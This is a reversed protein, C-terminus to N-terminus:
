LAGLYRAAVWGTIGSDFSVKKWVLGARTTQGTVTGQSGLPVRTILKGNPDRRVNLSYVATAVRGGGGIVSVNVDDSAAAGREDTATLRFTYQGSVLGRAVSAPTNANEILVSRPGAIQAWQYQAITGDQDTGKGSLSVAVTPTTTVVVTKDSGADAVPPVNNMYPYVYPIYNTYNTYSPQTYSQGSDVPAATETFFSPSGTLTVAQAAAVSQGTVSSDWERRLGSFGFPFSYSASASESKDVTTKAWLVYTYKGDTGRFAAGRVNAPLAMQATRAADYTKGYLLDSVTKVAKWQETKPANAVTTSSPSLDGYVGMTNFIDGNPEHEGLGFKYIQSIGNAQALVHAKIIYDNASAIDGWTDGATNQPLDTETVIWQKAPYVSGYGFKQLDATLDNKVGLFADVAADSHRTYIFGGIDNSWHRLSYMPYSHFSLVDFYAGGKLPYESTVSGDVPNDTNRLVADLFSAYGIGGTAVYENPQLTKIVDYAVRLERIYYFVPAKLNTLDNPNPNVNWWSDPASRDEWGASTYTFDPENVIEWFKVYPGYEKVTKYIYNAYTNAPNIQTKAADLWAPEYLGKFTRAREDAGPFIKTERNDPGSTSRESPDNPEGVFVTLDKMGMQQYSRFAGIRADVGYGTILWDPLSPRVTRSGANYALQAVDTDQFQGGYYGMNSGYAYLGGYPVYSGQDNATGTAAFVSASPLALLAAFIGLVIKKPNM